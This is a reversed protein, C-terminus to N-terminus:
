TARPQPNTTIPAPLVPRLGLMPGTSVGSVPVVDPSVHNIKAILDAIPKTIIIYRDLLVVKQEASAGEALVTMFATINKVIELAAALEIM